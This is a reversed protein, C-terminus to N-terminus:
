SGPKPDQPHQRVYEDVLGIAPPGSALIQDGWGVQRGWQKVRRNWITLDKARSPDIPVFNERVDFIKKVEDASLLLMPRQDDLGKSVKVVSKFRRSNYIMYYITGKNVGYLDSVAAVTMYGPLEPIDKIDLKRSM